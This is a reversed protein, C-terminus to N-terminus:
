ELTCIIERWINRNLHSFKHFTPYFGQDYWIDKLHWCLWPSIFLLLKLATIESNGDHNTLKVTWTELASIKSQLYPWEVVLRYHSHQLRWGRAWLNYMKRGTNRLANLLLISFLLRRPWWCNTNAILEDMEQRPTFSFNHILILLAPKTVLRIIGLTLM